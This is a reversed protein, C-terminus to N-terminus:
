RVTLVCRYFITGCCCQRRVTLEISSFDTNFISHVTIILAKKIKSCPSISSLQLQKKNIKLQVVHKSCKQSWLCFQNLLSPDEREGEPQEHTHAEHV